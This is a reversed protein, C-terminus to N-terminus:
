EMYLVWIDGVSTALNFSAFTIAKGDPAWSQDGEEAPDFTLQTQNEGTSSMVWIDYNDNARDSAFAIREGDPSWSPVVDRAPHNTLQIATGGGAPMVWIDSNGSEDSDFAIWAGDPSVDLGVIDGGSLLLESPGGSVPVARIEMIRPPSISIFVNYVIRDGNPFWAFNRISKGEHRVLLFPQAGPIPEMAWVDQYNGQFSKFALRTGDPSWTASSAWEPDSTLKIPQDGEVTTLYLQSRIGDLDDWDASFAIMMGDPSWDPLLAGVPASSFTLRQLSALSVSVINSLESFNPVEDAVKLGFFYTRGPQLDSITFNLQSGASGPAPLGQVRIANAWTEETIAELSQRLDYESARGESGDDGPVTWSLKVSSVTSSVVTLDGVREPPIVDLDSGGMVVNSIASWNPVEDAAKLAFYWAGGAVGSLTLTFREVQGAPKPTPPSAAVTASDWTAASLSTASYRIDYTSGQGELGDDGPATWTLTVDSGVFSEVALDEIRAPPTTDGGPPNTGGDDEGCGALLILFPLWRKLQWM